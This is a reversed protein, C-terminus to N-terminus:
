AARLRLPPGTTHISEDPHIITLTRDPKLTLRWGGELACHHHKSCLPLLNDLDTPGGHEWYHVHHPKTHAFAVGCGPIACTPYM